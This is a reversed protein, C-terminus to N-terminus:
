VEMEKKLNAMNQNMDRLLMNKMLVSMLNMPFASHATFVNTVRTQDNGLAETTTYAQNTAKFPKEFRLEVDYRQGDVINTIEQAGVGVNKNESSWASIFGVTGDEGTYSLKVDPDAMVWVSYYKQNKLHKVYEFVDRVPRDIVTSVTLTSTKPLIAATLLLLAILALVLYLIIM